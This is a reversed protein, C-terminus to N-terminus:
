ISKSVFTNKIAKCVIFDFSKNKIGVRDCHRADSGGRFSRRKKWRVLSDKFVNIRIGGWEKKM